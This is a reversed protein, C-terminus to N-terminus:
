RHSFVKILGQTEKKGSLDFVLFSVFSMGSAFYMTAVFGFYYSIIGGLLPGVIGSLSIISSLIGACTAKEENRRMLYSMSGVYMCSWAAAIIIQMPLIHYYTTALSYLVFVLASLLAGARILHMEDFRHVHRMIIFQLASNLAYIFGIWMLDAGLSALFLPFIVWVCQAGTHRIFMSLYVYWNRKFPEFSFFRTRVHPTSIKPSSLSILFSTAFFISSAVFIVHYTYVANVTDGGFYLAIPGVIANGVAWGLSGYSLFKGLPKKMEYVHAVLASPFIGVSFGAAIRVLALSLPSGAFVQFFFFISSLSLGAWLVARRSYIDSMVGFVYYSVFLALGYVAGIVGIEIDNAGLEQALLPIVMVSSSIAANTLMQVANWRM